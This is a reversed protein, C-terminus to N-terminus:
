PVAQMRRLFRDAKEFGTLRLDRREQGDSDFFVITPAGLIAYESQLAAVDPSVQSTIDAKLAAFRAAEAVVRPDTFTFRDLEKCPLCWEATFDILVPRGATIAAGLAEESYPEWAIGESASAPMMLAAAIIVCAAATAIRALRFGSSRIPSGEVFGLYIGSAVLAVPIAFRAVADPLLPNVFYIAMAFMVCGFVKKVWVMWAGARPLGTAAGTFGGLFLYPLGLGLSLVFFLWFGLLPSGVQGVYALLAVVFPGVCPAAVLGVTLGMFLAGGFGSRSTIRNRLAMPVQIDYLGMMSLGLAVLVIAVFILALPNQLIGGLIGGTSAALVGLASYTACMGLVYVSALAFTRGPRGKTQGGFYAMTIPILPYVCPTLNLALGGLFILGLTVTWGQEVVWRAVTNEEGTSGFAGADPARQSVVAGGAFAIRSFVETHTANIPDDAAAIPVAIEVPLRAPALCSTDNCAQVTLTGKLTRRGPELDRAARGEVGIPVSGEYVRLTKGGTFSFALELHPPYVPADFELGEAGEPDLALDTAILYDMSPEHANVHWGEDIDAVVAIRFASGPHVKDFSLFGEASVVRASTFGQAALPGLAPLVAAVGLLATAIHKTKM